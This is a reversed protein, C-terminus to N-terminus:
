KRPTIKYIGGNNAHYVVYLSGDPGFELDTVCKFNKLMILEDINDEINAVNDQLNPSKFVFGNRNENLKFNFIYGDLGCTGVFVSDQFETPWHMAPFVIATPILDDMEWSFEPDSYTYGELELMRKIQNETAPGMARAWGSNLGDFALNIEDFGEPGNETFWINNTLLDESIGFSNRIGMAYYHEFPADSQSPTLIGNNKGVKIIVGTDDVGTANFNQLVSWITDVYDGARQDGRALLITGDSKTMIAGGHHGVSFVKFSNVLTPNILKGDKWEFKYVNDAIPTGGDIDTETLYIYVFNDKTTSGLLGGEFSDFVNFDVLPKQDLNENKILKIKGTNKELVLINNDDVFTMTTPRAIGTAVLEIDFNYANSGVSPQPIVGSMQGFYFRIQPDSYSYFGVFLGIIILSILIM